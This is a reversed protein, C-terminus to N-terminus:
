TDRWAPLRFWFRSGGAPRNEHGIAGGWREATIRCFYLGLGIAGRRGSGQGFKEFLREVQDEPIGPGDDDVTFRLEGGAAEVGLIVAGGAPTHRLANETLNLLMRELSADDIATRLPGGGRCSPAIALSIKRLTATPMFTDVVKRVVVVADAVRTPDLSGSTPSSLEAAFTDLISLILRQQDACMRQGIEVLGVAEPPLGKKALLDFAAKIGTLPTALDHVICHLLIEKKQIEKRLRDHELKSARARTVLERKEEYEAWPIRLLLLKESLSRTAVAELPIEVGGSLQEVWIGSTEVGPIPDGWISEADPLFTELFPFREVVDIIIGPQAGDLLSELWHPVTEVCFRSDRTRVLIAIGLCDVVHAYLASMSAGRPRERRTARALARENGRQQVRQRARADDTCDLLVVWVGGEAGPLVHLAAWSDSKLQIPAADFPEDGLPLLGSLFPAVETAIRGPAADDLGYAALRGGCGAVVGARDVELYAVKDSPLQLARLLDRVPDPLPDM